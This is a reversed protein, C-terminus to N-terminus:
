YGGFLLRVMNIVDEFKLQGGFYLAISALKCAAAHASATMMRDCLQRVNRAMNIIDESKRMGVFLLLLLLLL